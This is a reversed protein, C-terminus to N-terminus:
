KSSTLSFDYWDSMVLPIPENEPAKGDKLWFRVKMSLDTMDYIVQWLPRFTMHPGNPDGLPGRPFVSEASHILFSENFVGKHDTLAHSLIQYRNMSDYPHKYTKPFESLPPLTWVPSNTMVQPMGKGEQIHGEGTKPDIEFIFSNGGADGILYHIGALFDYVKNNLLAKKAEESNRCTELVMRMTQAPNLGIIRNGSPRIMVPPRGQDVLGYITLGHENIGDWAGNLLDLGGLYLTAYGEDPRCEVVYIEGFLDPEGKQRPKRLLQSITGATFDMNRIATCHGSDMHVGPFYLMSCGFNGISYNLTTPDVSPDDAKKGFAELVGRARELLQPYNKELYAYRSIGYIESPNQALTVGYREKAIEGLKKGIDKQSGSIKMHRVLSFTDPTRDLIIKESFQLEGAFISPSWFFSVMMLGLILIRGRFKM